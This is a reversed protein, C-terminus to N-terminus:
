VRRSFPKESPFLWVIDFRRQPSRPKTKTKTKWNASEGDKPDKSFNSDASCCSAAFLFDPTLNCLLGCRGALVFLRACYFACMQKKILFIESWWLTEGNMRKIAACWASGLCVFRFNAFLQLSNCSKSEPIQQIVLSYLGFSLKVLTHTQKVIKFEPLACFQGADSFITAATWHAFCISTASFPSSEWTCSCHRHRSVPWHYGQRDLPGKLNFWVIM